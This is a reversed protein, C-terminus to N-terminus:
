GGGDIYFEARDKVVAIENWQQQVVLAKLGSDLTITPTFGLEKGARQICPVRFRAEEFNTYPPEILEIKSSSECMDVIKQALEIMSIPDPNGINYTRGLANKHMGALITGTVADDVHVFSRCQEGDGYVTLAAGVMAQSIFKAIVSGYGRPDLRPGYVNFYRVISASLGRRVFEQVLYEDVAKAVAYSWRPAAIPGLIRDGDEVLPCASNPKGYVESSSAFVVRADVASAWQLILETGHINTTLMQWPNHLVHKVGVVAALHYVLKTRDMLNILLKENTICGEVFQFNRNGDNQTLNKRDGTSLDDLVTVQHDDILLRDVLHSGVFGAGGTVLIKM